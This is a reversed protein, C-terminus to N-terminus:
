IEKNDEELILKAKLKAQRQIPLRFSKWIPIRQPKWEEKPDIIYCRTLKKNYSNDPHWVIFFLDVDKTSKLANLFAVTFPFDKRLLFSEKTDNVRKYVLGHKFVEPSSFDLLFFVKVPKNHFRKLVNNFYDKANHKELLAKCTEIFGEYNFNSIAEFQKNVINEMGSLAEQTHGELKNIGKEEDIQFRNYVKKIDAHRIKEASGDEIKLIPISIHEIAYVAQSDTLVIDPREQDQSSIDECSSLHKALPDNCNDIFGKWSAAEEQKKTKNGM